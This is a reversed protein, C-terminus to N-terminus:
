SVVPVDPVSEQCLDAAVDDSVVSATLVGVEEEEAGEPSRSSEYETVVIISEMPHPSPTQPHPHAQPPPCSCLLDPLPQSPQAPSGHNSCSNPPEASAWPTVPPEASAWPTVPCPFM